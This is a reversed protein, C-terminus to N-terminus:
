WKVPTIILFISYSGKFQKIYPQWLSRNSVVKFSLGLWVCLLSSLAKNDQTQQVKVSLHYLAIILLIPSRHLCFSGFHSRLPQINWILVQNYKIVILPICNWLLWRSEESDWKYIFKTHVWQYSMYIYIQKWVFSIFNLSLNFTSSFSFQKMIIMKSQFVMNYPDIM